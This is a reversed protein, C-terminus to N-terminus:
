TCLLAYALINLQKRSIATYLFLRGGDALIIFLKCLCARVCLCVFVCVCMHTCVLLHLSHEDDVVTAIRLQYLCASAKHLAQMTTHVIM